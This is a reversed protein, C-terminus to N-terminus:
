SLIKLIAEIATSKSKNRNTILLVYLKDLMKIQKNKYNSNLILKNFEKNFNELTFNKQILEPFVQKNLIINVLSIYKVLVLRKLIFYSLFNLRYVVITPIRNIALELTITGSVAIAYDSYRFAYNKFSSSRLVKINLGIHNGKIIDEILSMYVDVAIIIFKFKKKLPNNAIFFLITKLHKLIEKKRSGPFISIVKKNFSITKKTNSVEKILNELLPHGIYKTNIGHPLFYKREFPFLVFLNDIFKSIKKARNPKWAWVSPAVIHLTKLYPSNNKIKKLVRFNFDPSDVSVILNPKIRNISKVTKNILYLIRPIKPIVEIIGMISLEHFNYLPKLGLSKLKSGGLGHLEINAKKSLENIISYAINEGSEEGVLVFIKIKSNAHM